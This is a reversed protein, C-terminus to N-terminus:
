YVNLGIVKNIILSRSFTHLACLDPRGFSLLLRLLAGVVACAVLMGLVICWATM